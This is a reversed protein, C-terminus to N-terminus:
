LDIQVPLDIENALTTWTDTVLPIPVGLSATDNYDAWGHNIHGTVTLM